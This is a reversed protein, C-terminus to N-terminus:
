LKKDKKLFYIMLMRPHNLIESPVSIVKSINITMDVFGVGYAIPIEVGNEERWSNYYLLAQEHAEIKVLDERPTLKELSPLSITVLHGDFTFEHSKGVIEPVIYLFRSKFRNWSLISINESEM